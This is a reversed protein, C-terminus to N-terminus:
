ATGIETTSPHIEKLYAISLYCRSPNAHEQEIAESRKAMVRQIASLPIRPLVQICHLIFTLRAHAEPCIEFCIIERLRVM